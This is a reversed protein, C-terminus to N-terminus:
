PKRGGRRCQALGDFGGTASSQRYAHYSNKQRQAEDRDLGKWRVPMNHHPRYGAAISVRRRGPRSLSKDGSSRIADRHEARRPRHPLGRLGGHCSRTGNGQAEAPRSHTLGIGSGPHIDAEARQDGFATWGSDALQPRFRQQNVGRTRAKGVGAGGPNDESLQCLWRGRSARTPHLPYWIEFSFRVRSKGTEAGTTGRRLDM